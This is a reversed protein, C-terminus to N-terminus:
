FRWTVNLAVINAYNGNFDGEVKGRISFCRCLDKLAGAEQTLIELV